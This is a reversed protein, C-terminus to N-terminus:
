NLGLNKMRYRIGAAFNELDDSEAAKPPTTLFEIEIEDVKRKEM